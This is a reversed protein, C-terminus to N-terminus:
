SQSRRKDNSTSSSTTSTTTTSTTTSSTSTNERVNKIRSTVDILGTAMAGSLLSIAVTLNMYYLASSRKENKRANHAAGRVYSLHLAKALEESADSGSIDGFGAVFDDYETTLPLYAYEHGVFFKFGYFVFGCLPLTSALIIGVMFWVSDSALDVGDWAAKLVTASALALGVPFAVAQQLRDKRAIQFYFEEKFFEHM